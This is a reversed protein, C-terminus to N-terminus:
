VTLMGGVYFFQDMSWSFSASFRISSFRTCGYEFQMLTFPYLQLQFQFFVVSIVSM